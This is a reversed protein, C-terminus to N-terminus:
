STTKLNIMEFICKIRGSITCDQKDNKKKIVTCHEVVM